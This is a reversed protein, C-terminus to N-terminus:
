AGTPAEVPQEAAPSDPGSWVVHLPSQSQRSGAIALGRLFGWGYCAHVTVTLMGATLVTTLHETHYQRLDWAIKLASAVVASGYLLVPALLLPQFNWLSLAVLAYALWLSPVLYPMRLTSPSSRSLQGRGLGYKFMQAAFSRTSPRREHFATLRPDYYMVLGRDHMEALVANEEAGVLGDPFRVMKTRRVALNCLTFFREDARGAPHPGYRRRVPGSVVLSALTAGQIVEFTPRGHPTDNPGGLVSAEPHEEALFSLEGLFDPGVTVDDDLFLLWEGRAREVLTNRSAGLRAHGIKGVRAEPFYSRVIETVDPGGNSCVIVELTPPDTQRVLSGLCEQLHSLNGGTIICISVFPADMIVIIRLEAVRCM